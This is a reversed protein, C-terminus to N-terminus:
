PAVGERGAGIQAISNAFAEAFREVDEERSAWGLSLRIAGRALGPAVGM